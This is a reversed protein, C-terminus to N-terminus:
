VLVYVRERCSARGIQLTPGPRKLRVMWCSVFYVRSPLLLFILAWLVQIRIAGIDVFLDLSQYWQHTRQM